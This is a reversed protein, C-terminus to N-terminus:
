VRLGKFEKFKNRVVNRIEKETVDTNKYMNMLRKVHYEFLEEDSMNATKDTKAREENRRNQEKAFKEAQDLYLKKYKTYIMTTFSVIDLVSNYANFVSNTYGIAYKLAESNGADKELKEIDSRSKKIANEIAKISSEIMKFEAELKVIVGNSENYYDIMDVVDGAKVIKKDGIVTSDINKKLQEKTTASNKPDIYKILEQIGKDKFGNLSSKYFDINNEADKVSYPIKKVDLNYKSILDEGKKYINKIGILNDITSIKYDVYNIKYMKAYDVTVGWNTDDDKSGFADRVNFDKEEEVYKIIKKKKGFKNKFYRIVANKLSIFNDRIFVLAKLIGDFVRRVIGAELLIDSSEKIIKSQEISNCFENLAMDIDCKMIVNKGYFM